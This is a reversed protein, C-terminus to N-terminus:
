IIDKQSTVIYQLTCNQYTDPPTDMRTRSQPERERERELQSYTYTPCGCSDAYLGRLLMNGNRQNSVQGMHFHGAAPIIFSFM